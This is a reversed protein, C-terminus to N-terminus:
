AGPAPADCRVNRARYLNWALDLVAALVVGGIGTLTTGWSEEGPEGVIMHAFLGASMTLVGALCLGWAAIWCRVGLLTRGLYSEYLIGVAALVGAHGHRARFFQEEHATLGEGTTLLHLLACGGFMVTVLLTWSIAALLKQPSGRDPRTLPQDM